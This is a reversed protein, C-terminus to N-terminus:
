RNNSHQEKRSLAICALSTKRIEEPSPTKNIQSINFCIKALDLANDSMLKEVQRQEEESLNSEKTDMRSLLMHPDIECESLNKIILKEVNDGDLNIPKHSNQSLMFHSFVILKREKDSYLGSVMENKSLTQIGSKIAKEFSSEAIQKFRTSLTTADVDPGSMFKISNAAQNFFFYCNIFQDTRTDKALHFAMTGSFLDYENMYTIHKQISQASVNGMLTFSFVFLVLLLRPSSHPM